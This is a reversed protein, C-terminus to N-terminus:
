YQASALMTWWGRDYDAGVYYLYATRNPHDFSIQPANAEHLEWESGTKVLSPVDLREFPGFPHDAVAIFIGETGDTEGVGAAWFRGDPGTTLQGEMGVPTDVERINTWTHGDDTSTAGLIWVETVQDPPANWGLWVMHLVGEHEVVSPSTIVQVNHGSQEGLEVLPGTQTYPGELTDAEALYIQSRYTEEDDYGIYYIQHRGTASRRYFSTEKTIDLGSPGPTSEDLLVPGPTWSTWDAGVALKIGGEASYIMRHGGDPGAFVHADSAIEYGGDFGADQFVPETQVRDFCAFSLLDIPDESAGVPGDECLQTPTGITGCALLTSLLLPLLVIRSM